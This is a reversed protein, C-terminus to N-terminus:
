GIREEVFSIIEQAAKAAKSASAKSVLRKAEEPYENARYFKDLYGCRKALKSFGPETKECLTPLRPLFRTKPYRGERALLFAKLAKDASQQCYYCSGLFHKNRYMLQSVSGDEKARELWRKGHGISLKEWSDKLPYRPIGTGDRDYILKGKDIVEDLIFFHGDEQMRRFEDPTYAFFNVGVHCNSIKSVEDLRGFFGKRTKRIVALDIDSWEHVRGNALSGFLIIKEPRYHAKLRAVIRDLEEQLENKRAVAASGM